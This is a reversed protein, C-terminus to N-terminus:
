SWFLSILSVSPWIRLFCTGTSRGKFTYLTWPEGHDVSCIDCAESVVWLGICFWALSAIQFYGSSLTHIDTAPGLSFNHSCYIWYSTSSNPSLFNGQFDYSFVGTKLVQFSFCQPMPDFEWHESHDMMVGLITGKGWVCQEMLNLSLPGETKMDSLM